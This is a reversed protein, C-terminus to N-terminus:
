KTKYITINVFSMNPVSSQRNITSMTFLNSEWKMDDLKTIVPVIVSDSLM